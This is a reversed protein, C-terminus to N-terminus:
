SSRGGWFNSVLSTGVIKLKKTELPKNLKKTKFIGALSDVSVVRLIVKDEQNFYMFGGVISSIREVFKM